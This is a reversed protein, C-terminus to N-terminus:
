EVGKIALNGRKEKMTRSERWEVRGKAGEQGWSLSADTRCDWGTFYNSIGGCSSEGGGGRV